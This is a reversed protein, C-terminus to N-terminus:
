RCGNEYFFNDVNKVMPKTDYFKDPIYEINYLMLKNVSGVQRGASLKTQIERVMILTMCGKGSLIIVPVGTGFKEDFLFGWGKPRPKDYRLSPIISKLTNEYRRQEM